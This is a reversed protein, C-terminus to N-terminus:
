LKKWFMIGSGVLRSRLMDKQQLRPLLLLMLTVLTIGRFSNKYFEWLFSKISDQALSFTAATSEGCSAKM